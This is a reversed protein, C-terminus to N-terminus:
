FVVKYGIEVFHINRYEDLYYDLNYTLRVWQDLKKTGYFKYDAGASYRMKYINGVVLDHFAEANAEVSVDTKDIEYELGLRYRLTPRPDRYPGFAHTYRLRVNPKFDEIKYSGVVDMRPRYSNELGDKKEELDARIGPRLSLYKIPDYKLGIEILYRDPNIGDVTRVEPSVVLRLDKVLKKEVNAGVRIRFEQELPPEQAAAASTFALICLALLVRGLAGPKM